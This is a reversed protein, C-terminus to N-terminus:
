MSSGFSTSTWSTSPLRLLACFSIAVDFCSLLAVGSIDAQYTGGNTMVNTNLSVQSSGNTNFDTPNFNGTGGGSPWNTITVGSLTFSNSATINNANFNDLAWVNSSDLGIYGYMPVVGSNTEGSILLNGNTTNLDLDQINLGNNTDTFIRWGNGNNMNFVLQEGFEGNVLGMQLQNKFYALGYQELLGYNNLIGNANINLNGISVNTGIQYYNGNTNGAVRAVGIADFGPATLSSGFSNSDWYVLSPTPSTEVGNYYDWAGNGSINMTSCNFFSICNTLYTMEISNGTIQDGNDQGNTLITPGVIKIACDGNHGSISRLYNNDIHSSNFYCGGLVAYNMFQFTNHVVYSDYGQFPANTSNVYTNSLAGSGVAGCWVGDFNTGAGGGGALWCDHLLLRTGSTFILSNTHSYNLIGSIMDLHDIELTGVGFTQLMFGGNTSDSWLSSQSFPALYGGCGDGFIRIPYQYNPSGSINSLTLTGAIRYRGQAGTGGPIYVAGGKNAQAANIAAQVAATCDVVNGPVAGFALINFNTQINGGFINSSNTLYVSAVNYNTVVNTNVTNTLSLTTGVVAGALSASSGTLNTISANTLGGSGSPADWTGDGRYYTTASPTGSISKLGTPPINTLGTQGEAPGVGGNGTFNGKYTSGQGFCEPALLMLIFALIYRM